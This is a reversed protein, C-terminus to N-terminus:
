LESSNGKEQITGEGSVRRVSSQERARPRERVEAQARITLTAIVQVTLTKGRELTRPVILM